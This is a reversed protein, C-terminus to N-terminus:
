FDNILNQIKMEVESIKREIAETREPKTKLLHAYAEIADFYNGQRAFIDALTETIIKVEYKNKLRKKEFKPLTEERKFVLSSEFVKKFEAFENSGEFDYNKYLEGTLDESEYTPFLNYNYDRDDFPQAKFDLKPILDDGSKRSVENKVLDNAIALYKQAIGLEPYDTLIEEFISKADYFYRNALYCKGLLLKATTYDPYFYLGLNLVNIAENVNGDIIYYNALKVFEPSLPNSRIKEEFKKVLYKIVDSDLNNM